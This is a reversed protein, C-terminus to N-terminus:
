KNRAILFPKSEAPPASKQADKGSAAGKNIKGKAM